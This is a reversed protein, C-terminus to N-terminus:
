KKGGKGRLSSIYAIIEGVETPTFFSRYSLMGKHPVGFAITRAIDLEKGGYLWDKDTLNPGIRGEAKNGHCAICYQEFLNQGKQISEKNQSAQFIVNTSDKVALAQDWMKEWAIEEQKKREMELSDVKKKYDSSPIQQLYAILALAETRGEVPTASQTIEESLVDAQRVMKAWVSDTNVKKILSKEKLWKTLKKKELNNQYLHPFSPMIASPFMTDPNALYLYHWGSTYKGGLGDLSKFASHAQELSLTHCSSCSERKFIDEGFAALVNDSLEYTDSQSIKQTTRCNEFLTLMLFISLLTLTTRKM